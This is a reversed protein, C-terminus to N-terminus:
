TTSDKIGQALFKRQADWINFKQIWANYANSNAIDNNHQVNASNTTFGALEGNYAQQAATDAFSWPDTYQTKYNTNYTDLANQRNTGYVGLDRNVVGTYQQTAANQNYNIFDKITGGTGAVGRAAANNMFSDNGADRAFQYGPDNLAEEATPLVFDSYTFKPPPAYAPAHFVPTGPLPNPTPPTFQDPFTGSLDPYGSPGPPKTPTPTPPPTPATLGPVPTNPPTVTGHGPDPTFSGVWILQGTVPDRRYGPPVPASAPDGNGGYSPDSPDQQM